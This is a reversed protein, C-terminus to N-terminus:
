LPGFACFLHTNYASTINHTHGGAPSTRRADYTVRWMEWGWCQYGSSHFRAVLEPAGADVPATRQHSTLGVSGAGPFAPCMQWLNRAAIIEHAHGWSTPIQRYTVQHLWFAGSRYLCAYGSTHAAAQEIEPADVSVSLHIGDEIGVDITPNPAGFLGIVLAAVLVSIIAVTGVVNRMVSERRDAYSAVGALERM